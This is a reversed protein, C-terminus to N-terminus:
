VGVKTCVKTNTVVAANEFHLTNALKWINLGAVQIKKGIELCNMVMICFMFITIAMVSFNLLDKHLIDMINM